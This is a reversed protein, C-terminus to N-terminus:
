CGAGLLLGLGAVSKLDGVGQFPSNARPDGCMLLSWVQLQTAMAELLVGLVVQMPERTCLMEPSCLARLGLVLTRPLSLCRPGIVWWGSARPQCEAGGWLQQSGRSWPNPYCM